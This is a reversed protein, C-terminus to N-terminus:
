KPRKSLYNIPFVSKGYSKKKAEQILLVEEEGPNGSSM